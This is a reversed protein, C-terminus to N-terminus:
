EIPAVMVVVVVVVIMKRGKVPSGPHAAVLIFM